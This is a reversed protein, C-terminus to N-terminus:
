REFGKNKNEDLVREAWGAGMSYPMQYPDVLVEEEKTKSPARTKSPGQAQAYADARAQAHETENHHAYARTDAVAGVAAGIAVLWGGSGSLAFRGADYAGQLMGSVMDTTRPGSFIPNLMQAHGAFAGTIMGAVMLAGLTFVIGKAVGTATSKWMTDYSNWALTKVVHDWTNRVYGFFGVDLPNPAIQDEDLLFGM